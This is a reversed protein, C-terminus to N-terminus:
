RLLIMKKTLTNDGTSLRYFYIGSGPLQNSTIPLQYVGPNQYKNVLTEVLKGTIDYIKLSTHGPAELEYSLATLKSFPNPHNQMLRFEFNGTRYENNSEEIGVCIIAAIPTNDCDNASNTDGQVQTCSTFTYNGTDTATWNFCITTTDGPALDPVVTTDAFGDVTSIVVFTDAVNGFNEVTVCLNTTSDMCVTDPAQLAIVGGDHNDPIGCDISVIPRNGCDNASNTDGQVQTCSTFTYNGTDTATWNFCITTTDGSALDTIVTTDAFGDVTSIVVFTDAVNGFNEVTVCLNTTSDMCVTDPASLAIVGGDHVTAMEDETKILYVDSAGATFSWTLGTIIFGGNTTQQVFYGEDNQTGGFTKTWLTDGWYDTKILYVDYFGAGFSRTIGAIIFGDDTTQQVSYGEDYAAGGFTKTWLTDGWSDTKIVYVDELFLPGTSGAIIYGGDSTQQVSYGYDYTAGGFMKTWLTDGMFDTKILYVDYLGAGFSETYGSTIFGGDSTQQVSYGEEYATGGFTKTWLTDGISDTKILYVDYLGAGFSDTYGTLIYGGDSTQHVFYGEEYSPGGYTKTWLTDGMPDTKILYVDLMGSGFSGTSGTIIYSGDSNQKVSYGFEDNAGGFTKTWLTDGLSDTKILYVDNSGAGFSRTVGAIIYGGDLTQQVSYGDDPSGGGYNREFTVQASSTNPLLLAFFLFAWIIKVIRQANM